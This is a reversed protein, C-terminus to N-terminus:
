WDYRRAVMPEQSGEASPLKLESPGFANWSEPLAVMICLGIVHLFGYLLEVVPRGKSRAFDWFGLFWLVASAAVGFWGLSALGLDPNVPDELILLSVSILTLGVSIGMKYVGAM